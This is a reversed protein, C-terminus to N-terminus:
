IEQNDNKIWLNRKQYAEDDGPMQMIHPTMKTLAFLFNQILIKGTM